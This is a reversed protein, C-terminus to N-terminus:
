QKDTKQVLLIGERVTLMVQEVRDDSRVFQAFEHLSQRVPDDQAYVLACLANDAMILGGENLMGLAAQYYNMYNTKDADLFIIDFKEGNKALEAVFARADGEHLKIKYGNRAHDFCKRAVAATTKDAEVTVVRGDPPMGDAFSLASYGTFTGIDLIRKARSLKTIMKLFQGEIQGVMCPAFLNASDTELSIQKYDDSPLSTMASAYEEANPHFLTSHEFVPPRLTDEPKETLLESGLSSSTAGTNRSIQQDSIWKNYEDINSSGESGTDHSAECFTEIQLHKNKGEGTRGAKSAIDTSRHDLCIPTWTKIGRKHNTFSSRVYQHSRRYRLRIPPHHFLLNPTFTFNLRYFSM